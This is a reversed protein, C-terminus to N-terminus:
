NPLTYGCARYSRFRQLEECSPLSVIPSSCIQLPISYSVQSDRTRVIDADAFKNTLRIMFCGLAEDCHFTGNHTGVRKNLSVTSYPPSSVVPTTSMPLFPLPRRPLLPLLLTKPFNFISSSVFLKQAKFGTTTLALMARWFKVVESESGGEVWYNFFLIFLYSCPRGM